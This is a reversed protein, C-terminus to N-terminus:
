CRSEEPFIPGIPYNVQLWSIIMLVWHNTEGTVVPGVLQLNSFFWEQDVPDYQINLLTEWFKQPFQLAEAAKEVHYPVKM